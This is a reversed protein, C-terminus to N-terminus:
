HLFTNGDNIKNERDKWITWFVQNHFFFDLCVCHGIQTRLLQDQILYAVLVRSWLLCVPCVVSPLYCLNIERYLGSWISNWLCCSSTNVYFLIILWQISVTRFIIFPWSCWTEERHSLSFNNHISLVFINLKSLLCCGLSFVHNLFLSYIHKLSIYSFLM